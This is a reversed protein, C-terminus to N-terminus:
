LFVNNKLLLAQVILFNCINLQLLKTVGVVRTPREGSKTM